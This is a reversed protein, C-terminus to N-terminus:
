PCLETLPLCITFTSGAGEESEVRITGGHQTVIERVAYLGIGLGSIRHEDANPARFFREFLRPLAAPPIGIGQDSVAICAQDDQREVRVTVKGGRPSYKVANDILNHLVQELRMEDACIPLERAAVVVQLSHRALTPRIDAAVRSVLTVLDLPVAEITLRGGQIRSFDLLAGIMRNLRQTQEAIVRARRRVQEVYDAQEPLRELLQAQGLLVALPARLDHSAIAIFSDRAEVAERAAEYLRSREIAQAAQGAMALLVDCDDEGFRRAEGFTLALSGITRAEVSLPVIAFAAYSPPVFTEMAPYAAFLAARNEFFLPAGTRAVVTIPMPADLPTREWTTAVASPVGQSCVADLTQGDPSVLRLTGAVARLAATAHAVIVAAVQDPTLAESLAATVAQLEAIRATAREAATRYATIENAVIGIGAISQDSLRVPYYSSRWIRRGGHEQAREEVVERDLVPEGTSLVQALLPEVAPALAPLVERVTRGLHAEVLLGNMAALAANIHVYRFEPSLFCLGIPAAMLLTDLLAVAEASDTWAANTTPLHNLLARTESM